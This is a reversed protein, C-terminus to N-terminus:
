AAPAAGDEGPLPPAILDVEDMGAVLVGSLAALAELLEEASEREESSHEPVPLTVLEGLPAAAFARAGAAAWGPASAVAPDPAPPGLSRVAVWTGDGTRRWLTARAALGHGRIERLLAAPLSAPGLHEVAELLRETALRAVRGADLDEIPDHRNM